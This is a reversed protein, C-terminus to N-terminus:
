YEENNFEFDDKQVDVGISTIIDKLLSLSDRNSTMSKEGSKDDLFHNIDESERNEKNELASDRLKFSSVQHAGIQIDSM